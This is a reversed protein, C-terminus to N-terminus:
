KKSTKSAKASYNTIQEGTQLDSFIFTHVPEKDEPDAIITGRWVGTFFIERIIGGYFFSAKAKYNASVNYTTVWSTAEIRCNEPAYGNITFNLEKPINQISNSEYIADYKTGSQPWLIKGASVSPRQFKNPQQQPNNIQFDINSRNSYFKSTETSIKKVNISFPQPDVSKNKAESKIKIPTGEQVNETGEIFTVENIQFDGSISLQFEQQPRKTYQAYGLKNNDKVELVYNFVSWMNNPDSQGIYGCSEIAFYGPYYQSPILDWGASMLSGSNDNAAFLVKNNPNNSYQGVTLPTKTEQSYIVYPVGATAPLVNIYFKQNDEDSLDKSLGIEKGRGNSTLYIGDKNGTGRAKLTFPMDRINYINTSFNEDVNTSSALLNAKAMKAKFAELMASDVELPTITSDPNLTSDTSRTQVLQQQENLPTEIFEEQTCASLGILGICITIFYNKM